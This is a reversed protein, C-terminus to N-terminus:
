HAPGLTGNIVELIDDAIRMAEERDHTVHIAPTALRQLLDRVDGVLRDRLDRDLAAFPEDLLLLRPEPALARALAIRQAEGGSLTAVRRSAFDPLGVLDLLHHVRNQIQQRSLGRHRLGFAINAGADLHPFLLSDQFVLGFGRRYAPTDTIETGDWLIRGADLSQVGAICRLLTSKGSGSPGLLAMIRPPSVALDIDRLLTVGDYDIRGGSIVLGSGDRLGSADTM